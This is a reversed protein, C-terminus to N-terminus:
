DHKPGGDALVKDTRELLGPLVLQEREFWEKTHGGAWAAWDNLLKWLREYEGQAKLREETVMLKLSYQNQQWWKEIARSEPWTRGTLNPM